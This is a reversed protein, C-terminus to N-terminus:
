EGKKWWVPTLHDLDRTCTPDCCLIAMVDILWFCKRLEDNQAAKPGIVFCWLDEDDDGAHGLSHLVDFLQGPVDGSAVATKCRARAEESLEGIGQEMRADMGTTSVEGCISCLAPLGDARPSGRHARAPRPPRRPTTRM